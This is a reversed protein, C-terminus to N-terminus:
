NGREDRFVPVIESTLNHYKVIDHALLHIVEFRQWKEFKKARHIRGILKMWAGRTTTARVASEWSTKGLVVKPRFGFDSFVDKTREGDNGEDDARTRPM